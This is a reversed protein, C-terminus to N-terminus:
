KRTVRGMEQNRIKYFKEFDDGKNYTTSEEESGGKLPKIPAPLKTEEKKPEPQKELKVELRGLARVAASPTMDLIRELEEHNSALHYSLEAGIDSTMVAEQIYPPLEFTKITDMADFYDPHTEEFRNQQRSFNRRIKAAEETDAEKRSQTVEREKEQKRDWRNWDRMWSKTDEYNDLDPEDPNSVSAKEPQDKIEAEIERRARKYDRDGRKSMIEDIEAKTYLKEAKEEPQTDQATQEPEAESEDKEASAVPEETVEETVQEEEAM